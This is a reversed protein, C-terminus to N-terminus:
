QESTGHQTVLLITKSRTGFLLDAHTVQSTSLPSDINSPGDSTMQPGYVM